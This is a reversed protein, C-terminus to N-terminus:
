SHGDHRECANVLLVEIVTIMPISGCLDVWVAPAIAPDAVGDPALELDVEAAASLAPGPPCDPVVRSDLTAPQVRFVPVESCTVGPGVVVSRRRGSCQKL